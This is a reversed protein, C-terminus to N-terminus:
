KRGGAVRTASDFVIRSATKLLVRVEAAGDLRGIQTGSYYHRLIDGHAVGQEAFGFAGYQSMGIGHGFGAGRVVLRSAGQAPAAAVAVLVALLAALALPLLTPRMAQASVGLRGSNRRTSQHHTGRM